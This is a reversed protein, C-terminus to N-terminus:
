KSKKKKNKMLGGKNLGSIGFRSDLEAGGKKESSGLGRTASKAEGTKRRTSKGQLNKNEQQRNRRRQSDKEKRTNGRVEPTKVETTKPQEFRTQSKGLTEAPDPGMGGFGSSVPPIPDYVNSEPDTVVPDLGADSQTVEPTYIGQDPALTPDSYDVDPTVPKPIQGVIRELEKGTVKDLITKILGPEERNAIELLNTLRMKDVETTAPDTLRREIEAKTRRTQDWMAIKGIVTAGIMKSAMSKQGNVMEKLEELSLEKYNIPTPAPAVSGGGGGSSAEPQREPTTTVTDGVPFYGDPIPTIPEGNLFMIVIKHGEANMYTRAEFASTTTVGTPVTGAESMDFGGKKDYFVTGGEDYKGGFNIQEAISKGKLKKEEKEKEKLLQSLYYMIKEYRNKFKPEKKEAMGGDDMSQVVEIDDMSLELEDEIPDGGIRGNAEMEDFGMKAQIRLDEFFKVGYYRVVDAPVVYEGESLQAPIDDRVEEPLSGTPVENGSIPDVGRIGFNMEMQDELAM